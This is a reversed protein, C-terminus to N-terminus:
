RLLVPATPRALAAGTKTARDVEVYILNRSARVRHNAPRDLAVRVRAVPAGDPAVAPELRVGTVPPESVALTAPVGETRANRLDVFVTLPDPQSTLYAVPESAEILVTSLAGDARGTIARVAPGEASSPGSAAVTVALLATVPAASILRLYRSRM